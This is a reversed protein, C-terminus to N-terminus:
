ESKLLTLQAWDDKTQQNQLLFGHKSACNNIDNIDKDYFGSLLLYGKPKCFCFYCHMEDLLVNKNINALVIDFPQSCIFNHAAVQQLAINSLDNLMFNERSNEICWEDIDTGEIHQAGLKAAMIALIGTGTGLDLVSKGQHNIQLQAGIMQHTTAHHGTGFSMKPEVVIEIPYTPLGHHFTARVLVQDDVIIPDYNKEWTENWNEKPIIQTQYTVQYRGSIEDVFERNFREEETYAHIGGDFEEFTDFDGTSLEALLIDSLSQDVSFTLQIFNM